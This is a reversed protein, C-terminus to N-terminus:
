DTHQDVFDEDINAVWLERRNLPFFFVFRRTNKMSLKLSTYLSLPLFFRLPLCKTNLIDIFAKCLRKCLLKM